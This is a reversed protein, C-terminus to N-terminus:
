RVAVEAEDAESARAGATSRDANLRVLREMQGLSILHAYIQALMGRERLEAFRENPLGNLRQENVIYCGTINRLAAGEGVRMSLPTFLNQSSLLACFESTLRDLQQLESLYRKVNEVVETPEGASDFLPAGSADGVLSSGEDICVVYDESDGARTLAFPYRRIIAPVYSSQWTGDDNVFLNRGSQLGMLVVPRFGSGATSDEIFVIPYTTAARVFEQSTIYALHLERAFEFSNSASIRTKSHKARTVPVLNKFM